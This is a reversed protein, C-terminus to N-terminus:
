RPTTWTPRRPVRTRAWPSSASITRSTTTLSTSTRGVNPRTLTTLGTRDSLSLGINKEALELTSELRLSDLLRSVQERSAPIARHRWWYNLDRKSVNGREDFLGLPAFAPNECSVIRTAAHLDLDYEFELVPMTKNMLRYRPM